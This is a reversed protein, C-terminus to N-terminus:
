LREERPVNDPLRPEHWPVAQARLLPVTSPDVTLDDGVPVAYIRGAAPILRWGRRFDCRPESCRWKPMHGLGTPESEAGCGPCRVGTSWPAGVASDHRTKVTMTNM